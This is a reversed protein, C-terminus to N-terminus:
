NNRHVFLIGSNKWTYRCSLAGSGDENLKDVVESLSAGLREYFNRANTNSHYVWLYMKPDDAKEHVWRAADALLKRGIGSKQLTSDVHLNDILTGYVADENLFACCFGAITNNLMAVVTHQNIDPAKLRQHWVNLRDEDVRHDLFEDSLIGRYNKKWSDAHLQAIAKYDPFGAERLWVM